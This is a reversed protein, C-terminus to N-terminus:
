RNRITKLITQALGDKSRPLRKLFPANGFTDAVQRLAVYVLDLFLGQYESSDEAWGCGVGQGGAQQYVTHWKTIMVRLGEQLPAGSQGEGRLDKLVAEANKSLITLQRVLITRDIFIPMSGFVAQLLNSEEDISSQNTPHLLVLERLVTAHTHIKALRRQVAKMSSTAHHEALNILYRHLHAILAMRQPETFSLASVSELIVWDLDPIEPVNYNAGFPYKPM